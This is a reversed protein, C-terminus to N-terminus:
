RKEWGKPMSGRTSSADEIEPSASAGSDYDDRLQAEGRNTQYGGAAESTANARLMAPDIGTQTAGKEKKLQRSSIFFFVVAGVAAMGAMGYVILVPFQGTSTTTGIPDASYGLTELDDLSSISTYGVVAIEGIDFTNITRVAYERDTTFAVDVLEDVKIGERISSEGLTYKSIAQNVFADSLGFQGADVNIGTPDFLFHWIDLPSAFGEELMLPESLLDIAETGALIEYVGPSRAELAAAPSNIDFGGLMVPEDVSFYRWGMDIIGPHTPDEDTIVFNEVNGSIEIKYDIDTTAEREKMEAEYEVTIDTFYAQSQEALIRANLADTMAAVGPDSSGYTEEISWEQGALRDALEGQGDHRITYSQLFSATFVGTRDWPEILVTLTAGWANPVAVALALFLAILVPNFNM